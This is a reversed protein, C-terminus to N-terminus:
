LDSSRTSISRILVSRKAFSSTSSWVRFTSPLFAGGADGDALADMLKVFVARGVLWCSWYLKLMMSPSNSFTRSSILPSFTSRSFWIAEKPRIKSRSHADMSVICPSRNTSILLLTVSDSTLCASCVCTWMSRLRAWHSAVDELTTSSRPPRIPPMSSARAPRITPMSSPRTRSRASISSLSAAAAASFDAGSGVGCCGGCSPSPSPPAPEAAVAAEQASSFAPM